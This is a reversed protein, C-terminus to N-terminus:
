SILQNIRAQIKKVCEEQTVYVPKLSGSIKGETGAEWTSFRYGCMLM